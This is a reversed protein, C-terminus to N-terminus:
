PPGGGTLWGLGSRLLPAARRVASVTHLHIREFIRPAGIMFTPRMLRVDELMTHPGQM